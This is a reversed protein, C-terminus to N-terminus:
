MSSAYSLLASLNASFLHISRPPSAQHLSQQYLSSDMLWFSLREIFQVGKIVFGMYLFIM